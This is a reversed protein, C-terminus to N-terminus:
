QSGLRAARSVAPRVLARGSGAGPAADQGAPEADVDIKDIIWFYLAEVCRQELGENIQPAKCRCVIACERRDVLYREFQSHLALLRLPHKGFQAGRTENVVIVPARTRM